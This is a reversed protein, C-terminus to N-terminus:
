AAMPLEQTLVIPEETRKVTGHQEPDIRHSSDLANLFSETGLLHHM